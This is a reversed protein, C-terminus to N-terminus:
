RALALPSPPAPQTAVCFRNRGGRKAQYLAGDVREILATASRDGPVSTAVGLSATIQITTENGTVSLLALERRVCEAVQEAGAAPTDPLIILFKDGGYRCRIDTTRVVKTLLTGVRQLLDDGRLRGLRDNVTKFHDIDFMLVSVPRGSRRARRLEGDLAELGHARNFCGTLADRLSMERTEYFLQLNRVSIAMLAAATGLAKREATELSPSMRVGMVGVPGGAAILPLCFDDDIDVGDAELRCVDPSLVHVALQELQAHSRTEAADHLLVDWRDNKRTLIWFERGRAFRPVYKWLTQQLTAPELANALAQGFTTLEGLEESRTKAQTAEAAAAREDAKAQAYKQYQHFVYVVVLLILAPILDVQYRSEFEHAADFAIRLPHRFLIVTSAVLAMALSTDNRTILRV